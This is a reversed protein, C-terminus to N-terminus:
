FDYKVVEYDYMLGQPPMYRTKKYVLIGFVRYQIVIATIEQGNLQPTITKTLM